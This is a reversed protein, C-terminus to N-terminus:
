AAQTGTDSSRMSQIFVLFGMAQSELTDGAPQHHHLTYFTDALELVKKM